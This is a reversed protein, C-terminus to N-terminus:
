QVNTRELSGLLTPTKGKGSSPFLDLKRFTMNRTELIAASSCLGFVWDNQTNYVM